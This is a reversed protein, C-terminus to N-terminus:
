VASFPCSPFRPTLNDIVVLIVIVATCSTYLGSLKLTRPRLGRECLIHLCMQTYVRQYQKCATHVSGNVVIHEMSQTLTNRPARRGTHVPGLFSGIPNVCKWSCSGARHPRVASHTGGRHYFSRRWPTPTVGLEWVAFLLVCSLPEAARNVLVSVAYRVWFAYRLVGLYLYQKGLIFVM